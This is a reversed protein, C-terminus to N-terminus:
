PQKTKFFVVIVAHASQHEIYTTMIRELSRVTHPTINQTTYTILTFTTMKYDDHSQTRHHSQSCENFMYETMSDSGDPEIHLRKQTDIHNM